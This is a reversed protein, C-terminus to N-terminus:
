SYHFSFIPKTLETAAIFIHEIKQEQLIRWIKGYEYYFFVWVTKKQKENQAVKLKVRHIDQDINVYVM